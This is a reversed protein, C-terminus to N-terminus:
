SRQAQTPKFYRQFWNPKKIPQTLVQAKAGSDQIAEAALRKNRKERMIEFINQGNIEYPGESAGHGGSTYKGGASATLPAAAALAIAAAIVTTTIKM